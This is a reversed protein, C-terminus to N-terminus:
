DIDNAIVVLGAAELALFWKSKLTANDLAPLSIVTITDLPLAACFDQLAQGGELGPKGTPLRLDIIKQTSFLSLSQASHRLEAWKFNADAILVEREAYGAKAAAMRIADAAELALLLGSGHVVYLPVLGKSLHRPLDESSIKM